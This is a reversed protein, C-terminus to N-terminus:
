YYQYEPYFYQPPAAFRPLHESYEAAPGYSSPSCPVPQLQPGCSFLYNKPCPPAAYSGSYAPATYSSQPAPPAYGASSGGYSASKAKTEDASVLAIFLMVAVVILKM